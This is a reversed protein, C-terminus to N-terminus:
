KIASGKASKLDEPVVVDLSELLAVLLGPHFDSCKYRIINTAVIKATQSDAGKEKMYESTEKVFADALGIIQAILPIHAGKANTPYGTGNYLEHHHYAALVVDDPVNPVKALLDRGRLTHSEYLAVEEYTMDIRQKQLLEKPLERKGIDHMLGALTIKYSTFNSEIGASKALINAIMSVNVAHAYTDSSQEQMRLIISSLGQDNAVSSFTNQVWQKATEVKMKDVGAKFLDQVINQTTAKSYKLVKDRNINQASSVVELVKVNFGIYKQFDEARIYLSWIGREKYTRMKKTDIPTDVHGIKLYRRGLQIYVDTILKTGSIFDDINVSCFQDDLDEVEKKEDKPQPNLVNNVVQILDSARFPKSLFEAAGLEHATKTELLESFGTMVIVPTKSKNKIYKLLEIGNMEPMKVDTVVVDFENLDFVTKAVLGNEVDRVYFGMSEFSIKLVERFNHDDEVLLLRKKDFNNKNEM